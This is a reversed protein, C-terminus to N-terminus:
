VGNLVGICETRWENVRMVLERMEKIGVAGGGNKEIRVIKGNGAVVITVNEDCLSEEFADPDTLVTSSKGNGKAEKGGEEALRFVGFSLGIPIDERLMLPGNLAPDPDCLVGDHEADWWAKPLRTDKLAALMALWAADFMGNRGHDLSIFLIDIYLTWFAKVEVRAVGAAAAAAAAADVEEDAVQVASHRAETESSSTATPRYWIRLGELDVVESSHLLALVRQTLGQATMSPPGGPVYDPACGTALEINPVLLGLNALENGDRRREKKEGEGDRQSRVREEEAEATKRYPYDAVEEGKLVEGRVGCVVATDGVRVVASGNAHTLSGSHINVHRADNPSRSSPRLPPSHTLHASLYTRPSLKAHTRPPLTLPAPVVTM